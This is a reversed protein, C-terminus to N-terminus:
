SDDLLEEPNPIRPTDSLDTYLGSFAVSSLDSVNAKGSIDQHQTLYGADNNFYSVDKPLDTETLYGADNNFYSVDSPLEPM